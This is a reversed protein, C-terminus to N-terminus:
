EHINMIKNRLLDADLNNHFFKILEVDRSHSDEKM